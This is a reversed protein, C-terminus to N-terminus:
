LPNEPCIKNSRHVIAIYLTSKVAAGGIASPKNSRHQLASVIIRNG